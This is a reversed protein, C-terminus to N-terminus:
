EQRQEPKEKCPFAEKLAKLVLTAGPHHLGEPHNELYKAVVRVFQGMTVEKSICFDPSTNFKTRNLLSTSVVGFIFGYCYGSCYERTCLEEWSTDKPPTALVTKCNSLLENGDFKEAYCVSQSFAVFLILFTVIVKIM